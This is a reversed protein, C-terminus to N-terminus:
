KGSKKKSIKDDLLGRGTKYMKGGSKLEALIKDLVGNVFKGSSQTSFEKALEIYENITVKPPIDPFRSLECIGMRLIIRDILAIREFEWNAVKSEIMQDFEQYNIIVRNVLDRFFSIDDGSEVDSTSERIMAELGETNMHYAYLLQLAKERLKRRNVKM